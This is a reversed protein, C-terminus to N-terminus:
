HRSEMGEGWKRRRNGKKEMFIIAITADLFITVMFIPHHIIKFCVIRSLSVNKRMFPLKFAVLPSMHFTGDFLAAKPWEESALTKEQPKLPGSRPFLGESPGPKEPADTSNTQNLYNVTRLIGAGFFQDSPRM